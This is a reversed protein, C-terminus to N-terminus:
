AFLFAKMWSRGHEAKGCDHKRKEEAYRECLLCCRKADRRQFNRGFNERIARLLQQLADPVRCRRRIRGVTEGTAILLRDGTKRLIISRTAILNQRAMPGWNECEP